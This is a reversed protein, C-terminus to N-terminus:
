TVNIQNLKNQTINKNSRQNQLLLIQFNIVVSISTQWKWRGEMRVGMGRLGVEYM